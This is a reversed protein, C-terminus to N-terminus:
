HKHVAPKGAPAAAEDPNHAGGGEAAQNLREVYHVYEV